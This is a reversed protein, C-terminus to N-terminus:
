IQQLTLVPSYTILNVAGTFDIKINTIYNNKNLYVDVVTDKNIELTEYNDNENNFYKKLTKQLEQSKEKSLTIKYHTIKNTSDKDKEFSTNELLLDTLRAIIKEEESTDVFKFWENDSKM